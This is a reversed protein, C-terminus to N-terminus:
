LYISIYKIISVYDIPRLWRVNRCAMAQGQPAARLFWLLQFGGLLRGPVEARRDHITEHYLILQHYSINCTYYKYIYIHIIM